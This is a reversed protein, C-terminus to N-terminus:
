SMKQYMILIGSFGALTEDHLASLMQEEKEIKM